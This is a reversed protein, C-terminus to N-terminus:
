LILNIWEFINKDINEYHPYHANYLGEEGCFVM